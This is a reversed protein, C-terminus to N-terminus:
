TRVFNNTTPKRTVIISTAPKGNDGYGVNATYVTGITQNGSIGITGSVTARLQGSGDFTLRAMQKMASKVMMGLFVSIPNTSSLYGGDEGDNGLQLKVAQTQSGDPMTDVNIQHINNSNDKVEVDAM